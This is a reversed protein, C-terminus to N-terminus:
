NGGRPRVTPRPSPERPAPASRAPPRSAAPSSPRASPRSPAPRAQPRSAAPPSPRATPRSPTPASPRTSPRSPTTPRAAPQRTTAPGASGARASGARTPAAPRATSPAPPRTPTPRASPRAPAARPEARPADPSRAGAAPEGRGAADPTARAQPRTPSGAAPPTRVPLRASPRRQLTPRGAAGEPGEQGARSAGPGQRPEQTRPASLSAPSRRVPIRSTPSVTPAEKFQAVSRDPADRRRVLPRVGIDGPARTVLEYRPLSRAPRAVVVRTGSYRYSPYFYPDDWIVVRFSTCVVSYPNWASYSRQTHCDYCLFRPYSYTNGVHYTLFDLAYPVLEWDPVIEAVYDDIAVYPDEYVVGGVAGLDWGARADYAFTSFDLPEPSSVMFFYGVGPDDRVSWVPSAPLLLRYDRGGRVPAIAGPHQPFVMSVVGDTDIRFIAAFADESTRYYVRVQDGRQLVPEEGRDLWVRTELAPPEEQAQAGAGSAAAAGLLLTIVFSTSRRM